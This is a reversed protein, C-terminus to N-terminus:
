NFYIIEFEGKYNNKKFFWLWEKKSFFTNATLAWCQLNFLEHINKYGEIAVYSKKSYKVIKQIVKTLEFIELNHLCNISIILDFKKEFKYRRIDYVKLDSKIEKKANKISYRSIDIGKISIGPLIKKIEFLLFGKGCGIDLISSNNKLKYFKIIKKAVNSWYGDIYRYGGYGYRRNGDWYDFDFKRAIKMAEVKNDIMRDIYSRKTKLHNNTIFNVIKM